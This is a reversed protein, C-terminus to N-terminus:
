KENEGQFITICTICHCRSLLLSIHGLGLESELKGHCANSVKPVFLFTIVAKLGGQNYLRGEQSGGLM